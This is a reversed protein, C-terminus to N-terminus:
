SDSDPPWFIEGSGDVVVDLKSSQLARLYESQQEPRSAKAIETASLAKNKLKDPIAFVDAGAPNCFEHPDAGADLLRRILAEDGNQAAIQLLTWGSSDRIKINNGAEREAVESM